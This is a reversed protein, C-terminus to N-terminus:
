IKVVSPGPYVAELPKGQAAIERRGGAIARAAASAVRRSTLQASAAAKVIGCPSAVRTQGPPQTAAFRTLTAGGASSATAGLSFANKSARLARWLGCQGGANPATGGRRSRESPYTALLSLAFVCSRASFLSFSVDLVAGRLRGAPELAAGSGLAV